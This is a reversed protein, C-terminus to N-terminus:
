AEEQVLVHAQELAVSDWRGRLILHFLATVTGESAAVHEDSM